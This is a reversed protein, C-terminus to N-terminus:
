TQTGVVVGDTPGTPVSTVKIYLIGGNTWLYSDNLQLPNSWHGSKQTFAVWGVNGSLSLKVWLTADPGGSGSLYIAGTQGVINGNPDSFNGGKINPELDLNVNTIAVGYTVSKVNRIKVVAAGTVVRDDLAVYNTVTDGDIGDITLRNFEGVTGFGFVRVVQRDFSSTGIDLTVDKIKVSYGSLVDILDAAANADVTFSPSLISVSSLVGNVSPTDSGIRIHRVRNGEFVPALVKVNTQPTDVGLTQVPTISLATDYSNVFRPSIVNVNDSSRSIQMAGLEVVLASGDPKRHNLFTDSLSTVNGGNAVYLGHRGNGDFTNLSSKGGIINGAFVLGLGSGSSSDSAYRKANSFTSNSVYPNTHSGSTNANIYVGFPLKDFTCDDVVWDTTVTGSACGICGLPQFIDDNGVCTMSKFKPSALTGSLAIMNNGQHNWHWRGNQITINNKSTITVLADMDISLKSADIVTYDPITDVIVQMTAADSTGNVGWQAPNIINGVQLVAVTGNALTHDGYGDAAQSAVILYKAQGADGKTYYGGTEVFQGEKLSALKMQAVNIFTKM